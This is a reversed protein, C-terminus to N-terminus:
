DAIVTGDKSVALIMNTWDNTPPDLTIPSDWITDTIEFIFKTQHVKDSGAIEYNVCGIFVPIVVGGHPEVSRHVAIAGSVHREEIRVTDRLIIPAGSFLAVGVGQHPRCLDCYDNMVQVASRGSSRLYTVDVFLKLHLAPGPGHNTCICDIQMAIQFPGDSSNIQQAVSLKVSVWARTQAVGIERAINNNIALYVVGIGAVCAAVVSSLFGWFTWDAMERQAALDYEATKSEYEAAKAPKDCESVSSSKICDWFEYNARDAARASQYQATDAYFQRQASGTWILYGVLTAAVAGFALFAFPGNWGSSPM